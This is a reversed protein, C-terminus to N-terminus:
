PLQYLLVSLFRKHLHLANISSLLQVLQTATQRCVPESNVQQKSVKINDTVDRMKGGNVTIVRTTATVESPTLTVDLESDPLKMHLKGTRTVQATFTNTAPKFVSEDFAAGNQFTLCNDYCFNEVFQLHLIPLYM